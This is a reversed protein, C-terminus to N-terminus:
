KLVMEWTLPTGPELAMAARKGLITEYHKPALGHAPRVVRLNERTFVEGPAMESAVFLSRRHSKSVAEGDGAGYRVQGLAAEVSRVDKVMQAFEAPEMSFASDPTPVNRDLCLHKEIVRAGLAVATMPAVSGLSHDSLGVAVGFTKMMHPITNLHMDNLTAPYASTCKLLCIQENGQARVCEVAEHIEAETGMGTSMIMPKHLRAMYKILPLDTLEFSAVKYMDVGISELFDVATEDFPTSLFGLGLKVAEEKLKGQWEWPTQAKEYLSYLNEGKWLGSDIQFPAKDSNLTMTDPTYTQLKIADAGAEKAAYVIDKAQQFDGGHNASMEAIIYTKQNSKDCENFM